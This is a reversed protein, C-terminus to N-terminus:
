EENGTMRVEDLEISEMSRGKSGKIRTILNVMDIREKSREREGSRHQDPSTWRM